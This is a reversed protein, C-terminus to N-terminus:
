LNRYSASTQNDLDKSTSRAKLGLTLILLLLLLAPVSAPYVGFVIATLLAINISRTSSSVFAYVGVTINGIVSLLIAGIILPTIDGSAFSFVGSIAAYLGSGVLIGGFARRYPNNM